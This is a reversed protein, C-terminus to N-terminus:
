NLNNRNSLKYIRVSGKELILSDLYQRIDEKEELLRSDSYLYEAGKNIMDNLDSSSLNDNDFGWGKKDTYYFYIFHSIDNGTVILANKPVANRLEDKYALFDKNFRPAEPKWRGDMRLFCTVPLLLLLFITLYKWIANKLIYLNYAGYAVLMFILPYFPFLYYDHVKAIANAEFLYYILAIVSLALILIFKEDKFSERKYLFYFGAFFFVLSGYNILSEPLTSFLIHRMYRLILSIPEKNNFMGKVIVNDNWQPIVSVYWILPFFVFGFITASQIIIKKNIGQTFIKRLFYIGPVIYYIIFPLKCLTGISLLIGSLVLIIPRKDNYWTFFLALGWVSCCLALNDPMPNISHFYFSPSFSFAWTGIVSLIRNHFLSSLLKYIGLISVMGTIFMFLRTILVYKGFIKYLLATIWQMLPFEMRQIGDTNGRDNRRPNLINMDEEYFNNITTQTQTQRWVHNGIIDYSFKEYHMFFSLVVISILIINRYLRNM